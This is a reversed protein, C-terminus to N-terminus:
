ADFNRSSHTPTSFCQGTRATRNPTLGQRGGGVRRLPQARAAAANLGGDAIARGRSPQVPYWGSAQMDFGAPLVGELRM